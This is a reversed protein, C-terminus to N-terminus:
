ETLNHHPQCGCHSPPVCHTARERLPRGPGVVLQSSASMGEGQRTGAGMHATNDHEKCRSVVQKYTKKKRIEVLKRKQPGTVVSEGGDACHGHGHGCCWAAQCCHEHHWM